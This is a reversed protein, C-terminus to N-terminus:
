GTPYSRFFRDAVAFSQRCEQRRDGVRDRQTAPRAFRRVSGVARAAVRRIAAEPERPFNGSIQRGGRRLSGSGTFGVIPNMQGSRGEYRGSSEAIEVPMTSRRVLDFGYEVVRHTGAPATWVLVSPVSGHSRAGADAPSPGLGLQSVGAGGGASGRILVPANGIVRGTM